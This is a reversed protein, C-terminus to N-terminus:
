RQAVAEQEAQHHRDERREAVEHLRHELAVETELVEARDQGTVAAHEVAEVRDEEAEGRDVVQDHGEADGSPTVIVPAPLTPTATRPDVPDIPVCASSTM